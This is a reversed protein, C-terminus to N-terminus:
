KSLDELYVKMMSRIAKKGEDSLQRYNKILVREGDDKLVDEPPVLVSEDRLLESPTTDLAEAFKIIKELGLDTRGAEIHAISGKGAYGARVALEDQSLNLELRRRRINRYLADVM